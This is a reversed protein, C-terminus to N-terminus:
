SHCRSSPSSPWVEAHKQNPDFQLARASSDSDFEVDVVGVAYPGDLKKFIRYRFYRRLQLDLKLLMRGQDSRRFPHLAIARTKVRTRPAVPVNLMTVLM